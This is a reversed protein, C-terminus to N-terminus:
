YVRLWIDVKISRHDQGGGNFGSWGMWFLGASALGVIMNNSPFREREKECRPGV